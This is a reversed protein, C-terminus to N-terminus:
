QRFATGVLASHGRRLFKRWQKGAAILAQNVGNGGKRTREVARRNLDSKQFILGGKHVCHDELGEEQKTTKPSEICNIVKLQVMEPEGAHPAADGEVGEACAIDAVKEIATVMGHKTKRGAACRGDVADGGSPRIDIVEGVRQADGGVVFGSAMPDDVTFLQQVHRQEVDETVAHATAFAPKIAATVFIGAPAESYIFSPPAVVTRGVHNGRHVGKTRRVLFEVWIVNLAACPLHHGDHMTIVVSEETTEVEFVADFVQPIEEEAM